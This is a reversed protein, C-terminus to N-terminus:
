LVCICVYVVFYSNPLKFTMYLSFTKRNVNLVLVIIYLTFNIITIKFNLTKNVVIDLLPCLFLEPVFQQLFPFM